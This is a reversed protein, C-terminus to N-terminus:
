VEIRMIRNGICLAALYLMLCVTMFLIGPINHYLVSAYEWSSLQLFVLMAIPIVMMVRQELKKGALIVEVEKRAEYSDWLQLITQEIVKKWNGGSRKGYAFIESFSVIEEVETQKAIRCLEEELPFNLEVRGNFDRILPLWVSEKGYLKQCESEVEKWANEMSLGSQIAALLMQLSHLFEERLKEERRRKEEQKLWGSVLFHWFPFLFLAWISRYFIWAVMLSIGMAIGLSKCKRNM